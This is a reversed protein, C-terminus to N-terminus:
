NIVKADRDDGTDASPRRGKRGFRRGFGNWNNERIATIRYFGPDDGAQVSGFVVNGADCPKTTIQRSFV